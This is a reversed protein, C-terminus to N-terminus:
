GHPEKQLAPGPEFRSLGLDAALFKGYEGALLRWSADAPVPAPHLAVRPLARALETLARPMHYWATVVILSRVANARVWARTEAANGRTSQAERGLTVREALDPAVGARRALVAFATEGGVGSILAIHARGEALLRLATEVRGAGGTLAVIGGAEAPLPPRREALHLFWAFGGGWLLALAALAAVVRRLLRRRRM